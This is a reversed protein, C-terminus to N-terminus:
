YVWKELLREKENQTNGSMDALKIDKPFNELTIEQDKFIQEPTFLEKDERNLTNHFFDFVDKVAQSEERGKIITMSDSTYPAGEDFFLISFDMGLDIQEVALYTAAMGIAVEGQVLAKMPATGSSTFQLVNEALRDFYAFAEEEGMANVLSKVIIYGTNSMKPNPVSIFNKYQPDTLDEYSTPIELNNERMIENNLIIAASYKTNPIYRLPKVVLEDLYESTDIYSLDAFNESLKDMYGDELGLIIDCETETGEALIKAALNGTSYFHFEVDYEPFTEDVRKQFHKIRAEDVSSHIVVSNDSKKTCGAIMAGTLVTCVLLVVIKKM